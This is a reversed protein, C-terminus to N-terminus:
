WEKSWVSIYLTNKQLLHKLKNIWELFSRQWWLNNNWASYIKWLHEYNNWEFCNLQENLLIQIQKVIQHHCNLHLSLHIGSHMVLNPQSTFILHICFALNSLIHTPENIIQNLGFQSTAIDIKCVDFTTIDNQYWGQMRANNFDGLVVILFPTRNAIHDLNTTYFPSM